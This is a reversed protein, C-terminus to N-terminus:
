INWNPHPKFQSGETTHNFFRAADVLLILWNTQEFYPWNQYYMNKFKIWTQTGGANHSMIKVEQSNYWEIKEKSVISSVFLM